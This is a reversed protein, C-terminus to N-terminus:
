IKLDVGLVGAIRNRDSYFPVSITCCPKQNIASIYVPSMYPTGDMAKQWWPRVRANPIGAPPNSYIFAGDDRCTYIAEVRQNFEAKWSALIQKHQTGDGGAAQLQFALKEISEFTQTLMNNSLKRGSITKQIINGLFFRLAEGSTQLEESITATEESNDVNRDTLFELEDLPADLSNLQESQDLASASIAEINIKLDEVRAITDRFVTVVEGVM